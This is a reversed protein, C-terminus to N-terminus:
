SAANVGMQAMLPIDTKYWKAFEQTLNATLTGISDAQWNVGNIVLASPVGLTNDPRRDELFVHRDTSSITVTSPLTPVTLLAREELGDLSPLYGERARLSLVSQRYTLRATRSSRLADLMAHGM